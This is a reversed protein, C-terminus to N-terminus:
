GSKRYLIESGKRVKVIRSQPIVAFNESLQVFEQLPVEVINEFDRYSVFYLSPDDAYVAKSFIEQLRGKRAM